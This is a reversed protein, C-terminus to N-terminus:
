PRRNRRAIDASLATAFGNWAAYPALAVAAATSVPAARRILDVTSAELAGAHVAALVLRHSRFFSANWTANLVLNVALARVWQRRQAQSADEWVQSGAFAMSAYLASWVPGFLAAPPQWRPKDLARYWQSSPTTLLGGALATVGVAAANALLVRLRM